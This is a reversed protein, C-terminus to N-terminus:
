GTRSRCRRGAGGPGAADPLAGEKVDRGEPMPLVYSGSRHVKRVAYEDRSDKEFKVGYSELRKIM